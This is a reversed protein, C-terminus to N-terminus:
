ALETAGDQAYGILCPLELFALTPRLSLAHAAGRLGRLLWIIRPATLQGV